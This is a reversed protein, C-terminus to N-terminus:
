LVMLDDLPRRGAAILTAVEARSGLSTLDSRMAGSTTPNAGFGVIAVDGRHLEYEDIRYETWDPSWMGRVIRFAFSMEDILSRGSENVRLKSAIYAVDFDTPDLNPALVHLGTEDESLQLTGNVTRAIRRMQDHALVLPVDLDSRNLSRAGAGATVVETYPGFFDYMEYPSEYTSAWGEFTLLGSEAARVEYRARVTMRESSGPNSADRRHTPRDARSAVAAARQEAAKTITSM